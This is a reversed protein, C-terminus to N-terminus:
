WTGLTVIFPPLRLLTIILGNVLGCGLGVLLGLPFAIALPVGYVVCTRGMVVSSLIMIAGVSLDIGATLIVLTQAVGLTAVITVQQLVLSLNFPAFFKSGVISSFFIVGLALVLFPVTTPYQHLFHQARRLPSPAEEEFSVVSQPANPLVGEFEAPGRSSAENVSM